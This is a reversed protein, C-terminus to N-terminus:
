FQEVVFGKKRLLSLVSDDDLTLHAVGVVVFIKRDDKLFEAISEAMKVNRSTYMREEFDKQLTSDAADASEDNNMVKRLLEEDGTKWARIMQAVMSDLEFIERLTNKMYYIGSSDTSGSDAIATIQEDATELGVIVKGSETARDLLVADIGYNPDIGAHQLAIGSLTTAAFWPRFRKLLIPPYNWSLCLSDITKWMGEPLVKDLTTGNPLLGQKLMKKAVDQSISDDNINIEAAIEEANVFATEIVSDMPYFTSDAFHISGLIWVSSNEDSVKWLFHKHESNGKKFIGACGVLLLACIVFLIKNKMKDLGAM